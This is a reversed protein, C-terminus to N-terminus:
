APAIHPPLVSIKGPFGGRKNLIRQRMAVPRQRAMPPHLAHNARFPRSPSPIVGHSRSATKQPCLKQLIRQRVAMGCPRSARRVLHHPPLSPPARGAPFCPLLFPTSGCRPSLRPPIPPPPFLWVSGCPCGRVWVSQCPSKPRRQAAPFFAFFSPKPPAGAGQGHFLPCSGVFPPFLAFIPSFRTFIASFSPFCVFQPLVPLFVALFQHVVTTPPPCNDITM